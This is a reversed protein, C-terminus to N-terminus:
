PCNTAFIMSSQQETIIRQNTLWRPATPPTPQGVIKRNHGQFSTTPAMGINRQYEKICPFVSPTVPARLCKWQVFGREMLGPYAVALGPPGQTRQAAAAQGRPVPTWGAGGALARLVRLAGPSVQWPRRPAQALIGLPLGRRGPWPPGVGSAPLGDERCLLCLLQAPGPGQHDGAREGRLALALERTGSHRARHEAISTSRSKSRGAISLSVLACLPQRGLVLLKPPASAPDSNPSRWDPDSLKSSTWAWCVSIQDVCMALFSFLFVGAAGPRVSPGIVM